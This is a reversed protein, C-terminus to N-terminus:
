SLRSPSPIGDWALHFFWRLLFLAEPVFAAGENSGNPTEVKKVVCFISFVLSCDGLSALASSALNAWLLSKVLHLNFLSCYSLNTM